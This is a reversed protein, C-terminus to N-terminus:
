MQNASSAEPTFNTSGTWVQIPKGDKLLVVFKNHSIQTIKRPIMMGDFAKILKNRAKFSTPAKLGIAGVADVADATISEQLLEHVVAKNKYVKPSKDPDPLRKGDEKVIYNTTMDANYDQGLRYLNVPKAHHVIKVDAGRELADVFAQIVPAYTLEYVAARLSYRPGKAQAIFGLAAEELGRSMWTYAARDPVDQPKIYPRATPRGILESLKPDMYWKMYKGFQESYRQSGAIGRNFYIAHKKEEPNETTVTVEVAESKRRKLASPKGYVPQVKYTYTTDPDVEDDLWQMAQVPATKSDTKKGDSTQGPFTRGDGELTKFAGTTGTRRSITFGLLGEAAQETVNLGLLVVETGAIAHVSTRKNKGRKRM